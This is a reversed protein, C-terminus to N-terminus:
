AIRKVGESRYAAKSKNTYYYHLSRLRQIIGAAEKKIIFFPQDPM